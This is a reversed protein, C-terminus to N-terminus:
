LAGLVATVGFLFVTVAALSLLAKALGYHEDAQTRAALRLREGEIVGLHRPSVARNNRCSSRREFRTPLAVPACQIVIPPM